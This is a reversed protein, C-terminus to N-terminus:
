HIGRRIHQREHVREMLGPALDLLQSALLWNRLPALTTSTQAKM